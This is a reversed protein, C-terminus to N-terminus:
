ARNLRRLHRELSDARGRAEERDRKSLKPDDAPAEILAIAQKQVDVPLLALREAEERYEREVETKPM